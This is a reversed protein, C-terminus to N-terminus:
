GDTTGTEALLQNLLGDAPAWGLDSAIQTSDVVVERYLSALRRRNVPVRRGTLRAVIRGLLMAAVAALEPVYVVAGRRVKDKESSARLYDRTEVKDPHSLTYVKGKSSPNGIALVIAASVDEVHVMLLPRRPRGPCLLARGIRVGILARPDYGSGFFMSPRLITWAVKGRALHDLAVSEAETKAVSYAGREEPATELRAEGDVVHGDRMSLFDYVTLSSMYIVQRVGAAESAEAVNRTGEVATTYIFQSSGRLGAALHVVVDVDNVAARVDDVNRLDGFHVEIGQREFEDIHSLARVIVRVRYGDALLASVVTRGLHGTAGTVLVREARRVNRQRGERPSLDVHTKGFDRLVAEEARSVRLALAPPVPSRREERISQYLADILNGLGHYPLLKGRLRKM